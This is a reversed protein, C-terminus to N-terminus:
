ASQELPLFIRGGDARVQEIFDALTLGAWIRSKPKPYTEGYGPDYLWPQAQANLDDASFGYPVDPPNLHCSQTGGMEYPGEFAVRYVEQGNRPYPESANCDHPADNWDDGGMELPDVNSFYAWVNEDVFCLRWTSQHLLVDAM